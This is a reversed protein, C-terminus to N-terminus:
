SSLEPGDIQREQELKQGEGFTGQVERQDETVDVVEGEIVKARRSKAFKTFEEALSRLVDKIGEQNIMDDPQKRILMRKEFMGSMVRNAADVGVPIRKFEGTIRDYLFDGNELRDNIIDVTKGIIKSLKTDLEQDSDRQIEFVLEKWWPETKWKRITGEPVKTIASVLPAKGLALYSTVVEVRKEEPWKENPKHAM